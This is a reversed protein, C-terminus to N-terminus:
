DASAPVGPVPVSQQARRTFRQIWTPEHVLLIAIAASAGMFTNIILAAHYNGTRDYVVGDFYAGVGAGINMLTYMAGFIAGANVKGFIDASIAATLPTTASWSVGLIVAYIFMPPGSPLLFLVFFSVGRLAYVMALVRSRRYRDALMGLLITGAVSFVATVSVVEAAMTVHMGMEDAYAMFHTNAFAMTFGCVFFGWGLLWFVPTRLAEPLQAAPGIFSRRQRPEDGREPEIASGDPPLGFKAPDDRILVFGLPLMAALLLIALIKMTTQWTSISLVWAAVPVIVLQGLATGSTAISLATGRKKVFWRSVLTTVNVPSTAAFGISGIVGYIVYFQWLATAFSLLLLMLGIVAVGFLLIKKPGIRDAFVGVVPQLCALLIMGITVVGALAARSMGLDDQVPVLVVGYLFRAGSSAMLLSAITGVVIWGYFLRGSVGNRVSNARRAKMQGGASATNRGSQQM